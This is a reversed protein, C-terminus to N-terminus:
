FAEARRDPSSPAAIVASAVDFGLHMTHFQQALTQGSPVEVTPDGLELDTDGVQVAKGRESYGESFGYSSEARPYPFCLQCVM